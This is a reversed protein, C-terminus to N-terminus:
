RESVTHSQLIRVLMVTAFSAGPRRSSSSWWILRAIVSVSGANSSSRVRTLTQSTSPNTSRPGQWPAYRIFLSNCDQHVESAKHLARCRLRLLLGQRAGLLFTVEGRSIM